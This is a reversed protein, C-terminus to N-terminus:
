AANSPAVNAGQGELEALRARASKLTYEAEEIQEKLSSIEEDREIEEQERRGCDECIVTDPFWKESRIGDHLDFWEGCKECPCPCEM